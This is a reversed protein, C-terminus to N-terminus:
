IWLDWWQQCRDEFRKDDLGKSRIWDFVNRGGKSSNCSQCAPVVNFVVYIGHGRLPLICDRTLPRDIVGCYACGGWWVVLQTWEENTLARRLRVRARRKTRARHNSKAISAKGAETQSWSRKDELAKGSTRRKVNDARAKAKGEPTARFRRNSERRIEALYSPYCDNCRSRYEDPRKGRRRPFEELPLVRGCAGRCQKSGSAVTKGNKESSRAGHKRTSASGAISTRIM